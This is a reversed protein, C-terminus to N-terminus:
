LASHRRPSLGFITTQEHCQQFIHTIHLQADDSVCDKNFALNLKAVNQECNTKLHIMM